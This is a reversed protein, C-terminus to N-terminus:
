LKVRHCTDCRHSLAHPVAGGVRMTAERVKDSMGPDNAAQTIAQMLGYATIDDSEVLNDVIPQRSNRPISLQDFIDRLTENLEGELSLSTLSQVADLEADLDSFIANASLGVWELVEDFDQGQVRRNYNGSTAHTSIAGNTCWWAFLYGSLNLKTEPHGSMSNTFQLGVSWNDEKGSAHRASEITRSFHPIVLRLATRELSHAFKYDAYLEGKGFRDEIKETVRELVSLNPFTTLSSKVFTLGVGDKVMMRMGDAQKVGNNRVWYNLNSETLPGPSKTAYDKSLGIASTMTLLAEKRLRTEDGGNIRVTAETVFDANEERIGSNWGDPLSFVIDDAGGLDFTVEELPETTALIQLAQDLPILKGDEIITEVDITPIAM